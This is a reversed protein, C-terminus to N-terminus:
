RGSAKPKQALVFQAIIPIMIMGHICDITICDHDAELMTVNVNSMIKV